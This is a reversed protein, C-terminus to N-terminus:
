QLVPQLSARPASRRHLFPRECCWWFGTALLLFLLTEALVFMFKPAGAPLLHSAAYSVAFLNFQHILYLSYSITGLAALPKWLRSEAIRNSFPRLLFLTLTVCALFAFDLMSRLAGYSESPASQLRILSVAGLLVICLAFTLKIRYDSYVSLCLFLFAGLAFDVWYELFFGCIWNGPISFNWILGMLSLASVPVLLPLNRRVVLALAAAMVLYFQEEYNLSWFGAVFLTQNEFAASLPHSVNSIWQTLTLNQLWQVPTWSHMTQFGFHDKVIRTAVFFGIALLYPPYIRAIRRWMFEGFGVGKRRCAETSAAICYGSIVFFVMVALHGAEDPMV